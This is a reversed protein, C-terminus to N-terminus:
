RTNRIKRISKTGSLALARYVFGDAKKLLNRARSRASGTLSMVIATKVNGGAKELLHEADKYTLRCVDILVKKSREKLKESTARLDVMRNGFVKGSLIMATTTIMNLIMKQATGAKLRSSGAIAEPGVVPCIALDFETPAMRRPNCSLFVTKAGRRKAERLGELVYPTRRSATIGVVLDNPGIKQMAIDSRAANVDDEVGEQSRVLSRRGGAIIGKIRRPDTGFTPPCEAADLVGLRGSTGAGLYFLRGGRSFTKLAMEVARTIYPLEKRVATAVTADENNILRLIEPASLRDINKTKPNIKETVLGQLEDFVQRGRPAIRLSETNRKSRL